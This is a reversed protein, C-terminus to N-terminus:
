VCIPNQSVTRGDFNRILMPLLSLLDEVQKFPACCLGEVSMNDEEFPHSEVGLMYVHVGQANFVPKLARLRCLGDSCVLGMKCMKGTFIATCVQQVNAPSCDQAFLEHLNTGLQSETAFVGRHVSNSFIIKSEQNEVDVTSLAVLASLSNLAQKYDSVWSLHYDALYEDLASSDFTAAAGILWGEMRDSAATKQAKRPLAMTNFIDGHESEGAKDDIVTSALSSRGDPTIFIPVLAAILICRVHEKKLTQLSSTTTYSESIVDKIYASNTKSLIEGFKSYYDLQKVNCESKKVDSSEGDCYPSKYGFKSWQIKSVPSIPIYVEGLSDVWTGSKIFEVFDRRMTSNVKLLLESKILTEDVFLSNIDVQAISSRHRGAAGGMNLQTTGREHEVSRSVTSTRKKIQVEVQLTTHLLLQREKCYIYELFSSRNQFLWFRKKKETLQETTVPVTYQM